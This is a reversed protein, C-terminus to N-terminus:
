RIGILTLMPHHYREELELIASQNVLSLARCLLQRLM